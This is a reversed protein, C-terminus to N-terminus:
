YKRRKAIAVRYFEYGKESREPLYKQRYEKAGKDELLALQYRNLYDKLAEPRFGFTWREELQDLDHLLKEAGYFTGPHDLVLQHVYTFIVYSGGTFREIFRFTSSVAEATLYNTVGEWIITTPISVDINNWSILDELRQENFDVQLYRTNEPLRGLCNKLVNLKIAATNPHDIEIVPINRLFGLRLSRTDFGAGLIIVQRVGKHLTYQLRDDIYKTRAIGSSLAGPIKRYIIQQVMNRIVPLRSLKIVQKFRRDLFNIAYPDGFLRYGQPRTTELARFLAMYQATRSPKEKRM